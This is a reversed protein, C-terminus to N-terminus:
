RQQNISQRAGESEQQQQETTIVAAAAVSSALLLHVTLVAPYLRTMM